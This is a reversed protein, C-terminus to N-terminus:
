IPLTILREIQEDGYTAMASDSNATPINKPHLVAMDSLLGIDPFREEIADIVHKVLRKAACFHSPRRIESNKSSM